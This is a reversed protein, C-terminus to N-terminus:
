SQCIVGRLSVAESLKRERANFYLWWYCYVSLSEEAFLGGVSRVEFLRKMPYNEVSYRTHM